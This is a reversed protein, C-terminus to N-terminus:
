QQLFSQGVVLRVDTPKFLIYDIYKRFHMSFLVTPGHMLCFCFCFLFYMFTAEFGSTSPRYTYISLFFFM